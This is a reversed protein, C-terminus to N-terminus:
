GGFDDVYDVARELDQIADELKSLADQVETSRKLKGKQGADEARIQARKLAEIAEKM